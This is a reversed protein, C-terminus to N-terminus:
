SKSLLEKPLFGAKAAAIVAQTRNNVGLKRLIAKVHLKVTGDLLQLQRAIEKNSKGDALMELVQCQRPTLLDRATQSTPDASTIFSQPGVHRLVSAPIYFEGSLILPLAHRLVEM